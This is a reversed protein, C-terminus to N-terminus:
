LVKIYIGSIWAIQKGLYIGYWNNKSILPKGDINLVPDLLTGKSVTTIIEYKTSDGSRVRVSGGIVELQNKKVETEPKVEPIIPAPAPSSLRACAPCCCGPPWPLIPM